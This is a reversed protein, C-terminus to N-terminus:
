SPIKLTQGPKISDNETLQNADLIKQYLTGNGLTKHAIIWYSDGEVVTYTDYTEQPVTPPTEPQTVVPASPEEVSGQEGNNEEAEGGVEDVPLTNEEEIVQNALQEELGLIILKLEENKEQLKEYSEIKANAESLHANTRINSYILALITIVAIVLLVIGINKVNFSKEEDDYDNEDFFDDLVRNKDEPKKIEYYEEDREEFVKKKPKKNEKKVKPRPKREEFVSKEIDDIKNVNEPHFGRRYSRQNDPRNVRRILQVMDEEDDFLSKTEEGNFLMAADEEYRKQEVSEVNLNESYEEGFMDQEETGQEIQEELRRRRATRVEDRSARDDTTYKPNKIPHNRMLLQVIEKPFDEMTGQEEEIINDNNYKDDSM